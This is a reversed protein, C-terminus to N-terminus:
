PFSRKSYPFMDENPSALSSGAVPTLGPCQGARSKTLSDYMEKLLQHNPGPLGCGCNEIKRMQRVIFVIPFFHFIPAFCVLFCSKKIEM